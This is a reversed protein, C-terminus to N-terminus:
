ESRLSKVPNVLAARVAKYGVTLWAIIISVAIAALFIWASITIRYAFNQLWGNMIYLAAPVAIVFSVAILVMFEKSFLFVISSISAGLVKRIGVEKTRQVAMFSVLGYLGLCSIFIAILAFIKYVLALQNEQKYFQAINDDLFFGNYAYEPYTSEWLKQVSAVTAALNRTQIKVAVESENAKQPFIVIPKVAERLSNTKFDEVVGTISAWSGGGLSITRGIADEPHKIGLKQMLTQNIVAQRMTDAPDYGKGAVFHLGFTKFYDADGIKQYIDFGPDKKSHNFYFNASNNNDSSPADSTFAAAQVAPNELLLQKFGQM